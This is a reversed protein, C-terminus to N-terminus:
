QAAEVEALIAAILVQRPYANNVALPLALAKPSTNFPLAVSWHDGKLTGLYRSNPLVADTVRVQGDNLLTYDTLYDYSGQLWPNVKDPQAVAAVSFLQIHNPLAHKELWEQRELTTLSDVAKGDGPACPKFPTRALLDDYLSKASDAVPSGMVVGEISVFAVTQRVWAHDRFEDLAYMLDSTGKSYGVVILRDGASVRPSLYQDLIAANKGSSSRGEVPPVWVAKYGKALLEAYSDSFPTALDKVCEGFIGTVFVLVTNPPPAPAAPSGQPAGTSRPPYLYDDCNAATRATGAQMLMWCYRNFFPVSEDTVRGQLEIHRTAGEVYSDTPMTACGGFLAFLPLLSRAAFANRM